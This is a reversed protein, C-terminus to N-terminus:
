GPDKPFDTSVSKERWARLEALRKEDTQEARGYADSGLVLRM